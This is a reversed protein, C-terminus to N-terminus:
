INNENEKIYEDYYIWHMGYATNQLHRLCCSINSRSYGFEDEISQISPFVRDLEVCYVKVCIRKIGNKYGESKMRKEKAREYIGKEICNKTRREMRDGYNVIYKRDCWELNEARNDNKVQNIHNVENKNIPDNNEVFAFAVLRSIRFFKVEGDLYLGIQLYGFGDDKPSMLKEIGDKFTKIRGMNSIQYYHEYEKFEEIDGINKWVEGELDDIVKEYFVQGYLKNVSIRRVIGDKRLAVFITPKPQSQKLIKGTKSDIVRKRNSIKYLGEYGVVDKFVEEDDLLIIHGFTNIMLTNLNYKRKNLSVYNNIINCLKGKKNKVRGYNSITYNENDKIPKWMEEM